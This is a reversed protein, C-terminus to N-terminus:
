RPPRQTEVTVQYIRGTFRNRGEQYAETVPTEEDVGVDAGEDAPFAFPITRPVKAESPQQAGVFLLLSFGSVIGPRPLRSVRYM